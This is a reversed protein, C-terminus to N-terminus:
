PRWLFPTLVAPANSRGLAALFRRVEAPRRLIVVPKEGAYGALRHLTAPRRRHPYTWVWRIFEWDLAEPCGPALDPRTTRRYKVYRWLVRWLCIHRPPDLFIILDAAALRIDLTSGYNGDLIWYEAAALEAVITRWEAAPTEVWGPRWYLTDLHIVPLDLVAGLQRALTSKGAGGVGIIAVRKMAM